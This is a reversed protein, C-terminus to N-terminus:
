RRHNSLSRYYENILDAYDPPIKERWGERLSRQERPTLPGFAGGGPRVGARPGGAGTGPRAESDGAPTIGNQNQRGQQRGGPQPRGRGQQRGGGMQRAMQQAQQMAQSLREIASQQPQQAPDGTSQRQLAGQAEGMFQGAEGVRRGLQGFRQLSRATRETLARTRAQREALRDLAQGREASEPQGDLSQTEERIGEERSRLLRLDGLARRLDMMAGGQGGQGGQGNQGGQANQQNEESQLARAMEELLRAARDGAQGAPADPQHRSLNQRVRGMAGRAEDLTDRFVQSPLRRNLGGASAEIEGQKGALQEMERAEEPSPQKPETSSPAGAAEGMRRLATNVARQRIALQELARRLAERERSSAMQNLADQLSQAAQEMAQQGAQQQPAAQGAANRALQSGAQALREAARQLSEAAEQADPSQQGLQQLAQALRNAEQQLARQRRALEAAEAASPQSATRRNIEQQRAMMQELRRLAQQLQRRLANQDAVQARDRRLMQAISAFDRALAGQATAASALANNRLREETEAQRELISLEQVQRGAERALAAADRDTAELREAAGVLRERLQEASGRAGAQVKALQDLTQRIQRSLESRSFGLTRPMLQETSRRLSLEERALREAWAALRELDDMPAVNRRLQEMRRLIEEQRSLAEEMEERSNQGNQAADLREAAQPMAERAMQELESQAEQQASLEQQSALQNSELAQSLARLREAAERAQQALARQQEAARALAEPSAGQRRMAAVQARLARQERILGELLRQLEERQEGLQQEMEQPEVIRVRYEVSRGVHPGNLTDYDEAELRYRVADGPKLGLGGLSWRVSAPVVRVRPGGDALTLRQPNNTPPRQNSSGKELTYVLRLARVGHDDRAAGALPLSGNPVLDRDGAPREIRVEPTADPLARIPYEITETNAFGDTDKLQFGYTTDRAVVLGGSASAGTVPWTAAPRSELRMQAGALPKSATLRVAVRTGVPAQLAGSPGSVRSPPRQMYNPYRLLLDVGVVAPADVVRAHGVDSQGDGALAYYEIADSLDTFRHVFPARTLRVSNWPGDGFRFRIQAAEAPRGEAAVRVALTGGRLIVTERPSVQVRTNRYVPVGAYPHLMRKRWAAFAEPVLAQHLLIAALALAAAGGAAAAGGSGFAAEFRLPAAVRATESALARIMATSIGAHNSAPEGELEVTSLLREGLEPYRREVRAAIEWDPRRRLTAIWALLAAGGVLLLLLAISWVTRAVPSLVLLRDLHFCLLGLAILAVLLWGAGALTDLLAWYHRARRLRTNLALDVM